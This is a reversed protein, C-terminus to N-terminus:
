VLLFMTRKSYFTVKKWYLSGTTCQHLCPEEYFWPHWYSLNILDTHHSMLGLSRRESPLPPLLLHHMYHRQETHVASDRWQWRMSM